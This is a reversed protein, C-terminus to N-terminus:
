SKRRRRAALGALALLSLTSTTPEPVNVVMLSGVNDIMQFGVYLNANQVNSFVSSALVCTSELETAAAVDPLSFEGVGTFLVLSEGCGLALVDALLNEGMQMGSGFTLAAGNLQVASSTDMMELTVGDGLTLGAAELSAGAGFVATSNVTVASTAATESAGAYAGVTKGAAVELMNLSVAEAMNLLSVDGGSAVVGSLTNAANTVTLKGRGANEVSSNTLKNALTADQEALSRVHGNSLEFNGNDASYKQGSTAGVGSAVLTAEGNGQNSFEVKSRTLTLESGAGLQVRNGTYFYLGQVDMELSSGAGLNIIGNNAGNDYSVHVDDVSVFRADANQLVELNGQVWCAVNNQRDVVAGDGLKLATGAGINLRNGGNLILENNVTVSGSDIKMSGLTSAQNFVSVANVAQEFSKLNVTGDFTLTGGGKRQYVGNAGSVAGTITLNAGRNQHVQSTGELVLDKNLVVTTGDSLQFNANNALKLVNGFTSDNITFTGSMVHTTGTFGTSIALKQGYGTGLKVGLTGTGTINAVTYDGSTRAATIDLRVGESIRVSGSTVSLSELTSDANFITVANVAQTFSKLTVAGNFTLTGGGRRQYVGNAGSVTGNITLGADRNQHVQTTGDLVLNEAMIVTSADSLQFNVGDALRLTHGFTSGNITFEGDRVYTTGTFGASQVLTQRYGDKLMVGLTGSGTVYDITVADATQQMDLYISGQEGLVVSSAGLASKSFVQLVGANVTTTGAYTNAGTLVLTGNGAKTISGLGAKNDAHILGSVTLVADGSVDYNLNINGGDSGRLRTVASIENGKGETVYITSGSQYYDLAGYNEQGPGTITANGSMRISWDGMSQRTMGVDMRGGNLTITKSTAYWDLMDQGTGAFMLCGGSNVTINNKLVYTDSQSLLLTGGNVVIASSGLAGDAIAELVGANVTTTGAYTNIGTLVLTGDGGKTISGLGAQNDAHILGSVTLAADESVDYNLNINRGDSGRLRTVASIKNEMGSTVYITSNTQYYDLVGNGSQTSQVIQANDSMTVSWGGMSQRTSGLDMVAGALTISKSANYDIMDHGSGVFELRGGANVTVNNKLVKTGDGTLKLTGGNVVVASSGLASAVGAELVGANVTTTNAYTNAGTLVLTGEGNKTISGKGGADDAHIKGSVTLTAGESVDYNLNNGGRLRTIASITSSGSIAHITSNNENFDMSASKSANSATYSGGNGTVKAGDSLTLTWFGMTQRTNGFALEGGSTVTINNKYGSGFALTDCVSTDGAFTFVGENTISIDGKLIQGGQASANGGNLVLHTSIGSTLSMTVNKQLELSTLSNMFSYFGQVVVANKGVVALTTDGLVNVEGTFTAACDASLTVRSTTNEEGFTIGVNMEPVIPFLGDASLVSTSILTSGDAFQVNGTTSAGVQLSSGREMRLKGSGAITDQVVLAVDQFSARTGEAINLTGVILQGDGAFGADKLVHLEGTEVTTDIHLVGQGSKEMTALSLTSGNASAITFDGDHNFIGTNIRVNGDLNIANQGNQGTFVIRANENLVSSDGQWYAYNDKLAFTAYLGSDEASVTSNLYSIGTVTLKSSVSSWDGSALLYRVGEEIASLGDFSINVSSVGAGVSAGGTQLSASGGFAAFCLEGGNLVLSNNLVATGGNSGALVNLTHGANLSFAGSGLTLEAGQAISVDGHVTPTNTFVLEGRLASVDHVTNWASTFTQKGTGAMVINLGFEENGQIQGAYQYEGSGTITLANRATSSMSTTHATIAAGAFIESHQTGNLGAIHANATNVALGSRQQALRDVNTVWSASELSIVAGQAADDHALELQALRIPAVQWYWGSSPYDQIVRITGNFEGPGSLIMRSTGYKHSYPQVKWLLEGSGTLSGINWVHSITSETQHITVSHNDRIELANIAHSQVSMNLGCLNMDVTADVGFSLTGDIRNFNTLSLRSSQIDLTGGQTNINSARLTVATGKLTLTAGADAGVLGSVDVSEGVDLIGTGHTATITSDTNYTTGNGYMTGGDALKVLSGSALVAGQAYLTGGAIEVGAGAAIGANRANMEGGQVVKVNQTFTTGNLDLTGGNAITVAHESDLSGGEHMVVKGGDQVTFSDYDLSGALNATGTLVMNKGQLTGGANVNVTGGVAHQDDTLQWTGGDNLNVTAGNLAGDAATTLTIGGGVAQVNVTGNYNQAVNALQIEGGAMGGANVNVTDAGSLAYNVVLKGGGGFNLTTLRETTGAAGYQVTTGSLAGIGLGAHSGLNLQTTCDQTLGLVGTSASDIVALTDQANEFQVMVGGANVLWKNATDAAATGTLILQGRNLTKRIGADVSGSFTFTGGSTGTDVTMAGTGTVNGAYDTNADVGENFQVAFTGGNLQVNGKHGFYESYISTDELRQGGEVYEMQHRVAERMVYTGGQEVTVDGTLRAHSGLEFTGGNQVSVNMAADAYHWDDENFYRNENRGTDSGTGHITNTGRLVVTGQNVQLGSDAHQLSTRVSNLVWTGDADYVIKLSSNASDVFSGLFGTEGAEKYTLTSATGSTTNAIIADDTLANISFGTRSADAAEATTYWDMSTGNLELTGGRNGFTLDRKIQDANSIVVTAGNNVLVNYAAYGGTRNLYTKGSGGVNLLIHNNGSGEIYLNGAGIKRWERLYDAPNTLQVHVEAGANVVYGAHNFLNAEGAASTITYTGANFEAYGIGLDVSDNLVITNQAGQANFQLNETPFLTETNQIVYSEDYTYWNRNDKVGNLDGWTNLGNKLGNYSVLTNTGDTVTGSWVEGTRTGDSMEGTKTNVANLYITSVASGMNVVKTFSDVKQQDFTPDLVFVSGILGSTVEGFNSGVYSYCQKSADWVYLPSGSDGPKSVWTLPNSSNIGDPMFSVNSILVRHDSGGNQYVWNTTTIGGTVYNYGAILQESSSNMTGLNSTYPAIWQRGSGVHYYTLNNLGDAAANYISAPSVDTIVKSLRVVKHDSLNGGGETEQHSFASSKVYEIAKYKIANENGIGYVKNTFTSTFNLEHHAATAIAAPSIAAATAVHYASGFDIMGHALTYDAQGGTYTIVVGGEQQRIYQLLSNASADNVYRGANQGFDTYTLLTIDRHMVEASVPMCTVSAVVPLLSMLCKFLSVPLHLKM